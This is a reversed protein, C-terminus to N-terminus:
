EDAEGKSIVKTALGTYRRQWYNAQKSDVEIGDGSRYRHALWLHANDKSLKHTGRAGMVQYALNKQLPTSNSNQLIANATKELDRQKRQAIANHQKEALEQYVQWAEGWDVKTGRGEQYAYALWLAAHEDGYAATRKLGAFAKDWNAPNESNIWSNLRKEYHDLQQKAQEDYQSLNYLSQWAQHQVAPISSFLSEPLAVDPNTDALDVPSALFNVLLVIGAIVTLILGVGLGLKKNFGRLSTPTSASATVTPKTPQDQPIDATISLSTASTTSVPTAKITSTKVQSVSALNQQMSEIWYLAAHAAPRFSLQPDTMANVFSVFEDAFQQVAPATNTISNPEIATEEDDCDILTGTSSEPIGQWIDPVNVAGLLNLLALKLIARDSDNFGGVKGLLGKKGANLLKRHQHSLEELQEVFQEQQQSYQQTIIYFIVLGLAYIDTYPGLIVKKQGDTNPIALLVQEPAVCDPSFNMRTAKPDTSRELRKSIGFDLLRISNDEALMLNALKFDRHVLSQGNLDHQQHIYKLAVIMQRIWELRQQLPVPVDNFLVKQLATGYWPMVFAPCQYSGVAVQGQDIVSVVYHSEAQELTGLFEIEQQIRQCNYKIQSNELLTGSDPNQWVRAVKLAFIQQDHQRRVKFVNAQAGGPVTKICEYSDHDLTIIQLQEMMGAKDTKPRYSKSASGLLIDPNALFIIIQSM